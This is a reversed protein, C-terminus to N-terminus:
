RLDGFCTLPEDLVGIVAPFTKLQVELLDGKIDARYFEVVNTFEEDFRKGVAANIWLKELTAYMEYDSQEFRDRICENLM